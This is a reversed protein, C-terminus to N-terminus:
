GLLVKVLLEMGVVGTPIPIMAGMCGDWVGGGGGDPVNKGGRWDEGYAAGIRFSSNLEGFGTYVVFLV